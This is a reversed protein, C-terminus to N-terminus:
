MSNFWFSSGQFAQGLLIDKQTAYPYPAYRQDIPLDFTLEKMDDVDRFRKM